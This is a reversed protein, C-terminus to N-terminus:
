QRNPGVAQAWGTLAPQRSLGTSSPGGTESMGLGALYKAAINRAGVLDANLRFGCDRCRFESRSRRNHRYVCGCAPCTQSTHRPDVGVVTCGKEEAKYTLFSRLQGFSWGHIRRMQPGHRRKARKRIDTLNEVVITSRPAVSDVIQRSLQHDLDRRLRLQKGGLRRLHRRASKTGKSQLCRRLRFYRAELERWRRKGFFKNNSAVAPHVVGLDVGVTEGSPTPARGAISPAVEPAPVDVVVHLWFRGERCVLDATFVRNGAYKAHFDPLRFPVCLRGGTTSLTATGEVWDVKLTHHNYRAPCGESRPCSVKRGKRARDLASRVAETAKVRAQVHLDSVLEPYESKLPYYMAHHLAVGNREAHEFGYGVVANFVATFQRLTEVLTRAQEATPILLVRITRDM